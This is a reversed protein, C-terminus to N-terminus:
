LLQDLKKYHSTQILKKFFLITDEYAWEHERYKIKDYVYTFPEGDVLVMKSRVQDLDFKFHIYDEYRKNLVNEVLTKIALGMLRRNEVMSLDTDVQDSYTYANEM